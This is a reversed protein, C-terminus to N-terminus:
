SNRHEIGRSPAQGAREDPQGSVAVMQWQGDQRVYVETWRGQVQGPPGHEPHVTAAYAYHVVGTHGAYVRLSLPVLRYAGLAPADDGISRLAADRDHPAPARLDWGMYDADLAAAISNRDRTQICAWLAVVRECLARQETTWDATGRARSM